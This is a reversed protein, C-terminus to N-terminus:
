PLSVMESQGGAGTFAVDQADRADVAFVGDTTEVSSGGGAADVAQVGRAGDPLVGVASLLNGDADRSTLVLKSAEAVDPPVCTWVSGAEDEGRLCIMGNAPVVRVTGAETDVARALDLNAGFPGSGRGRLADGERQPRRLIAFSAAQDPPVETPESRVASTTGLSETPNNDSSATLAVAAGTCGIAACLGAAVLAGSLRTSSRM